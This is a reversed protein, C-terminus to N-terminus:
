STTPVSVGRFMCQHWSKRVVLWIRSHRGSNKQESIRARKGNSAYQMMATDSRDRRRAESGTVRHICPRPKSSARDRRKPSGHPGVAVDTRPHGRSLAILFDRARLVCQLLIWKLATCHLCINAALPLTRIVPSQQLAHTHSKDCVHQHGKKKQPM